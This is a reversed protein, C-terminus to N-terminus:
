LVKLKMAVEYTKLIALQAHHHQELHLTVQHHVQLLVHTKVLGPKGLQALNLLRVLLQTLLQLFHQQRARVQVQFHTDDGPLL